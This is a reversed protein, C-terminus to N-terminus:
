KGGEKSGERLVYRCSDRSFVDGAGRRSLLGLRVESRTVVCSCVSSGCTICTFLRNRSCQMSYMYPVSARMIQPAKMM